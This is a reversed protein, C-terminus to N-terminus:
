DYDDKSRSRYIVFSAVLVAAAAGAIAIWLIPNFTDGTQPGNTSTTNGPKATPTPTPTASSGSSGSSNDPKQTPKPAPTPTPTPKSIAVVELVDSPGYSINYNAASPMAKVLNKFAEFNAVSVTYTGATLPSPIGLLYIDFEPLINDGSMTGSVTFRGSPVADMDKIKDKDLVFTIVANAKNVVVTIKREVNTYTVTDKPKFVVNFEYTGANKIEPMQSFDWTGEVESKFTKSIEDKSVVAGNYTKSYNYTEVGPVKKDVLTVAYTGTIPDMNINDSISRVQKPTFEWSLVVKDGVHGDFTINSLDNGFEDTWRFDGSVTLGMPLSFTINSNLDKLTSGIYANGSTNTVSISAKSVVVEVPHTTFEKYYEDTGIVAYVYWTGADLTDPKFSDVKTGGVNTNTKSVYWTVTGTSPTNAVKPQAAQSGWTYDDVAVTGAGDTKTATIEITLVVPLTEDTEAVTAKVIAVGPKTVILTSNNQIVGIPNEGVVEFTVPLNKDAGTLDLPIADEKAYDVTTHISESFRIDPQRKDVTLNGLDVVIGQCKVTVHANNYDKATLVTGVAISPEFQDKSSESYVVNHYYGDDYTYKVVFTDLSFTEGTTYNMRPPSVIEAGTLVRSPTTVTDTAYSDFVYYDSVLRACVTYTNEPELGDFVPSTKWVPSNITYEITYADKYAPMDVTGEVTPVATLSTPTVQTAKVSLTVPLKNVTLNAQLNPNTVTFNPDAMQITLNLQHDGPQLFMEPNGIVVTFDDSKVLDSDWQIAATSFQIDTKGNFFVELDMARTVEVPMPDITFKQVLVGGFKGKGTFTATATGANLNNEFEVDYDVNKVLTNSNYTLTFEPEILSGTYAPNQALQVTVEGIDVERTSVDLSETSEKNVSNHLVTSIRYETTPTLGDIKFSISGNEVEEVNLTYDKNFGDGTCTIKGSTLPAVDNTINNLTVVISTDAPEAQLDFTPEQTSYSYTVTQKSITGDVSKVYLEVRQDKGAQTLTTDTNWFQGDLSVQGGSVSVVPQFEYWGYENVAPSITLEVPDAYKFAVATTNIEFPKLNNSGSYKIVLQKSTEGITAFKTSDVTLTISTQKGLTVENSVLEGDIYAAIKDDAGSFLSTFRAMLSTPQKFNSVDVTIDFVKGLTVEAPVKVEPDVEAPVVTIPIEVKAAQPFFSNKFVLTYSGVDSIEINQITWDSPVITGTVPIGKDEYHVIEPFKLKNRVTQTLDKGTYVYERPGEVWEPQMISDHKIVIEDTIVSKLSKLDYRNSITLKGDVELSGAFDTMSHVEFDGIVKLSGTAQLTNVSVNTLEATGYLTLYQISEISEGNATIHSNKTVEYSNCASDIQSLDIDGYIRILNSAVTVFYGNVKNFDFLDSGSTYDQIIKNATLTDAKIFAHTPELVFDLETSDSLTVSAANIYYEPKNVEHEFIIRSQDFSLDVGQGIEIDLIVDVGDFIVSGELALADLSVTSNGKANRLITLNGSPAQINLHVGNSVILTVDTGVQTATVTASEPVVWFGDTLDTQSTYVNYQEVTQTEGNTDIYQVPPQLVPNGSVDAILQGGDKVRITGNNQIGGKVTLTTGAPVELTSDSAVVMGQEIVPNGVFEYKNNWKYLNNTRGEPADMYYNFNSEIYNNSGTFTNGSMANYGSGMGPVAGAHSPRLYLTSQNATITGVPSGFGGGLAAAAAETNNIDGDAVPQATAIVISNTFSISGPQAGSKWGTGVGAAGLGGTATVDLNTFSMNPGGSQTAGGFGAAHYGGTVIYKGGVCNITSGEIGGIGPRDDRGSSIIAGASEITLTCTNAVWIGEEVTLYAAPDIKLTSDATIEIYRYTTEGSITQTGGSLTLVDQDAQPEVEEAVPEVDMVASALPGMPIEPTVPTDEIDPASAPVSPQIEEADVQDPASDVSESNSGQQASSSVDQVSTVSEVELSEMAYAPTAACSMCMIGAMFASLIRTKM